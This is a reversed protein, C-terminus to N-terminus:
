FHYELAGSISQRSGAQGEIDVLFAPTLRIVVGGYIGVSEQELEDQFV